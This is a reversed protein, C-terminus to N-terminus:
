VIQSVFFEVNKSEIDSISRIKLHRRYKGTGELIDDPDYMLFGQTFEFSVHNKRVFLGGFDDNLSFMIGGYMIREDTEGHRKFVIERLNTLILYKEHDLLKIDNLFDQVKKNKSDM